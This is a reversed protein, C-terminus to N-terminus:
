NGCVLTIKYVEYNGTRLNRAIVLASTQNQESSVNFVPGPFESTLTSSSGLTAGDPVLRLVARATPEGVPEAITWNTDDCPSVLVADTPWGLNASANTKETRCKAEGASDWLFDCTKGSLQVSVANGHLTIEGRPDRTPKLNANLAVTQQLAGAADLRLAAVEFNRYLLVAFGGAANNSFSSADLIREPSEYVLQRELRVPAVPLEAPPLSVRPVAVMRIEERDGVHTKAALIVQTPTEAAYVALAPVAPDEALQLARRDFADRLADQWRTGEGESWTEEPHWELRLPGHLGPIAAIREALKRATDNLATDTDAFVRQRPSYIATLVGLLLLSGLFVPRRGRKQRSIGASSQV